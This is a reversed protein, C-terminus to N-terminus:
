SKIQKRQIFKMLDNCMGELARIIAAVPEVWNYAALAQYTGALDKKWLKQGVAWVASIDPNGSIINQPIRKWLFKANCRSM